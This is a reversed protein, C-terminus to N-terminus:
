GADEPPLLPEIAAIMVPVDDHVVDWVTGLNVRFYHHILVDRFRGMSQWPIEPHADRFGVPIQKTAEGIILLRRIVANQHFTSEEFEDRSIDVVYRLALRGAQVMDRLWAAERWM